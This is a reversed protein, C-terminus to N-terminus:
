LYVTQVPGLLGSGVDIRYHIHKSIKRNFMGVRYESPDRVKFTVEGNTVVAVGSNNGGKYAQNPSAVVEKAPESAWYIVKTGSPANVKTKLIVTAKEPQKSSLAASPFATPSLFPLFYDRSFMLYIASFGVLGYIIRAIIPVKLAEFMMKIVDKSLFAATLWNLGGALLLVRLLMEFQFKGYM